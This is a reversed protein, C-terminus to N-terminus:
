GGIRGGLGTRLDTVQRQLDLGPGISRLDMLTHFSAGARWSDGLTRVAAVKWAGATSSSDVTVSDGCRVSPLMLSRAMLGRDTTSPRGVLGNAPSIMHSQGDSQLEGARDFRLVGDSVYWTVGLDTVLESLGASVTGSWSWDSEQADAPIADLPGLALTTRSALDSAIERSGVRGQYGVSAPFGTGGADATVEIETEWSGPGGWRRQVHRLSGSFLESLVEGYGARIAVPGRVESIQRDTARSLGYIRLRGGDPQATVSRQLSVAIRYDALTLGAVDVELRRRWRYAM